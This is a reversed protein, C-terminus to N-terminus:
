LIALPEEPEDERLPRELALFAQANPLSAFDARGQLRMERTVKCHVHDSKARHDFQQRLWAMLRGIPRGRGAVTSNQSSFNEGANLTRTLKCDDHRPNGCFAILINDEQVHVIRGLHPIKIETKRLDLRRGAQPGGRGQDHDDEAQADGPAHIEAGAADMVAGAVADLEAGAAAGMAAGSAADPGAASSSPLLDDFLDAFEDEAEEAQEQEPDLSAEDAEDDTWAVEGVGLGDDEDVSAAPQSAADADSKAEAVDDYLGAHDIPGFELLALADQDAPVASGLPRDHPVNGGPAASSSAAATQEAQPGDPAAAESTEATKARKSVPQNAAAKKGRVRLMPPRPKLEGTADRKKGGAVAATKKQRRRALEYDSGHWVWVPEIEAREHADVVPVVCSSADFTQWHTEQLSISFIRLQWAHTLDINKSVFEIDTLVGFSQDTEAVGQVGLQLVGPIQPMDAAPIKLKDDLDDFLQLCTFHFSSYNMHAPYMFVAPAPGGAAPLEAEEEGGDVDWAPASYFGFVLTKEQMLERAKNPMDQKGKRLTKRLWPLLNQWFFWLDPKSGERRGCVCIGLSFCIDPRFRNALDEKLIPKQKAHIHVSCRKSWSRSTRGLLGFSRRKVFTEDALLAQLETHISTYITYLTYCYLSHFTHHRM